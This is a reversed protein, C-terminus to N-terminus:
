IRGSLERDDDDAQLTGCHEKQSESIQKVTEM